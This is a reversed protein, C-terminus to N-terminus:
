ALESLPSTPLAIWGESRAAAAQKEDPRTALGQAAARATLAAIIADVADHSTRRLGEHPGPDLWPAAALLDDVLAALAQPNRPHKYGRYALGWCKLSAAPYIEM